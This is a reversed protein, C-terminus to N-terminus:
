DCAVQKWSDLKAATGGPAAAMRKRGDVIVGTRLHKNLRPKGNGNLRVIFSAHVATENHFPGSPKQSPNHVRADMEEIALSRTLLEGGAPRQGISRALAM